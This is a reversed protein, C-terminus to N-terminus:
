PSGFNRFTRLRCQSLPRFRRSIPRTSRLDYIYSFENWLTDSMKREKIFYIYFNFCSNLRTFVILTITEIDLNLRFYEARLYCMYLVFVFLLEKNPQM